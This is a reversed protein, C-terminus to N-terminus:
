VGHFISGHVARNPGSSSFLRPFIGETRRQPIHRRHVLLPIQIGTGPRPSRLPHPTPRTPINSNHRNRRGRRWIHLVRRITPPPPRTPIPSPNNHPIRHIPPRRLLCVDNRRSRQREMPGITFLSHTLVLSARSSKGRLHFQPSALRTLFM